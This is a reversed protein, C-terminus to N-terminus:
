SSRSQAPSTSKASAPLISDVSGGQRRGSRCRRASPPMSVKQAASIKATQAPTVGQPTNWPPNDNATASNSQTQTSSASVANAAAIWGFVYPDDVMPTFFDITEVVAQTANLQYVAADDSTQHGVLARRDPFTPLGRLVEALLNPRLKCACGAGHSLQSLRIKSRPM